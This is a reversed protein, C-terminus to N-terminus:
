RLDVTVTCGTNIVFGGERGGERRGLERWEIEKINGNANVETRIQFLLNSYFSTNCVKPM